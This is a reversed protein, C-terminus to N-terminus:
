AQLAISSLKAMGVNTILVIICTFFIHINQNGWSIISSWVRHRHWLTCFFAWRVIYIDDHSSQMIKTQRSFRVVVNQDETLPDVQQIRVLKLEAFWALLVCEGECRWFGDLHMGCVYRGGVCLPLNETFFFTKRLFKKTNDTKPQGVESLIPGKQSLMLVYRLADWWIGQVYCHPLNALGVICKTCM